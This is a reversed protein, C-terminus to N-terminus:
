RNANLQVLAKRYKRRTYSSAYLALTLGIRGDRVNGKRIYWKLFAGLPSFWSKLWLVRAPDRRDLLDTAALDTYLDLKTKMESATEFTRHVVPSEIRGCNEYGTLTEHVSHDTFRLTARRYIRIPYDPSSIPMLAHIVKGMVVWDRRVAYAEHDFGRAKLALVEDILADSAIEDSDFFMVTEHLCLGNAFQRQTRFNDFPRHVTRAGYRAAISLTADTSGSDVVLLDDAIRKAAALVRDLYRESNYTLVYVSLPTLNFGSYYTSGAPTKGGPALV